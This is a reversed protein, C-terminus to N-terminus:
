KRWNFGSNQLLSSMIQAVTLELDQKQQGYSAEGDKVWLVYDTQNQYKNFLINSIVLTNEQCFVTLRQGAENQVGLGFNGTIGPIEQSRKCKLGRNHFPCRKKTNARSPTTPRWLVLWSCNRQCWYNSCLNPNGHQQITQRPFLGLDNQWKQSKMWPSHKSSKNVILAVGNGRRSEQGCSYIYQNDSNFEGMRVWKLESIRLFSINMRAVEQEVIDVKDKIPWLRTM